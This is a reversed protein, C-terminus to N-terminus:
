AAAIFSLQRGAEEKERRFSFYRSNEITCEDSMLISTRPVGAFVAQAALVNPLAAFIKGDRKVVPEPINTSTPFNVFEFAMDLKAAVDEQIEYSRAQAGPGIVVELERQQAGLRALQTIVDLLLGSQAGRWGCHVAAVYDTTKSRILIPFCDACRIGCALKHESLVKLSCIWADASPPTSVFKEIEESAINGTLSVIRKGHEQNLVLLQLGTNLTEWASIDIREGVVPFNGTRDGFGHFLSTWEEVQTVSLVGSINGEKFNM